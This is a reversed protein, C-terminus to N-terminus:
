PQPPPFAGFRITVSLDYVATAARNIGLQTANADCVPIGNIVAQVRELEALLQETDFLWPNPLQEPPRSM